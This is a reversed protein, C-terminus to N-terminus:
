RARETSVADRVLPFGHRRWEAIGGELEYVDDYGLHALQRAAEASDPCSGDACYVVVPDDRDVITPANARLQELPVNHAHPLHVTAFHDAPLVDLLRIRESRQLLDALQPPDIKRASSTPRLRLVRDIWHWPGCPTQIQRGLVLSPIAGLEPCGPYNTAGAVVHAAGFWALVAGVPRRLSVPVARLRSLGAFMLGGALARAARQRASLPTMGTPETSEIGCHCIGTKRALHAQDGNRDHRASM